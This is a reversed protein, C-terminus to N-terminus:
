ASAIAIATLIPEFVDFDGRKPPDPTLYLLDLKDVTDDDPITQSITAFIKEDFRALDWPAYVCGDPATAATESATPTLPLTRRGPPVTPAIAISSGTAAQSGTPSSPAKSATVPCVYPTRYTGDPTTGTNLDEWVTPKTGYCGRTNRQSTGTAFSRNSM